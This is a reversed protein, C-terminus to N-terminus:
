IMPPCDANAGIGLRSLREGPIVARQQQGGGVFVVNARQCTRNYTGSALEVTADNVVVPSTGSGLGGTNL